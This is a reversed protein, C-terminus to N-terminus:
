TALAEALLSPLTATAEGPSGAMSEPGGGSNSPGPPMQDGSVSSHAASASQKM